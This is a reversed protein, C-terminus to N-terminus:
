FFFFMVEEFLFKALSIFESAKQLTGVPYKQFSVYPIDNSLPKFSM